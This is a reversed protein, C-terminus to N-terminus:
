DVAAWDVEVRCDGPLAVPAQLWPVLDPLPAASRCPVQMADSAPAAAAGALEPPFSAAPRAACARRSVAEPSLAMTQYHGLKFDQNSPQPM